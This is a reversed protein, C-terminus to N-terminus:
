LNLQMMSPFSGYDRMQQKGQMPLHLAVSIIGPHFAKGALVSHSLQLREVRLLIWLSM